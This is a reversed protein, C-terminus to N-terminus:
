IETWASAAKQPMSTLGIFKAFQMKEFMNNEGKPLWNFAYGLM